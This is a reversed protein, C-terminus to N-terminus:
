FGVVDYEFFTGFYWGWTGLLCVSLGLGVIFM